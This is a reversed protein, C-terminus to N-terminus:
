IEAPRGDHVATARRPHEDLSSALHNRWRGRTGTSQDGLDTARHLAETLRGCGPCLCGCSTRLQGSRVSCRAGGLLRDAIPDSGQRASAYLWAGHAGDATRARPRAAGCARGALRRARVRAITQLCGRSRATDQRHRRCRHPHGPARSRGNRRHCRSGICAWRLKDAPAAPEDAGPSSVDVAGPWERGITSPRDYSRTSRSDDLRGSKLPDAISAQAKRAEQCRM